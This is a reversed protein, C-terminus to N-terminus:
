RTAPLLVLWLAVDITFATKNVPVTVGERTAPEDKHNVYISPPDTGVDLDLSTKSWLKQIAINFPLGGTSIRSPLSWIWSSPFM